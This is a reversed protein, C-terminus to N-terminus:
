IKKEGFSFLSLCSLSLLPLLPVRAFLVLSSSGWGVGEGGRSGSIYFAFVWRFLRGVVVVEEQWFKM